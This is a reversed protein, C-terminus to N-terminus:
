QSVCNGKVKYQRNFADSIRQGLETVREAEAGNFRTHKVACNNWGFVGVTLRMGADGPGIRATGQFTKLCSEDFGTGECQEAGIREWTKVLDAKGELADVFSGCAEAAPPYSRFASPDKLGKMYAAGYRCADEIMEVRGRRYDEIEALDLLPADRVAAAAAACETEFKAVDLTEIQSPQSVFPTSPVSASQSKLTDITSQLTKADIKADDYRMAYACAGDEWELTRSRADAEAGSLAVAFMAALATSGHPARRRRM